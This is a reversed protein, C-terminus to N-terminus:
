EMHKSEVHFKLDNVLNVKIAREQECDGVDFYYLM